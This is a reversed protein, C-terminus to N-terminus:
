KTQSFLLMVRPGKPTEIQWREEQPDQPTVLGDCTEDYTPNGDILLVYRHTRNGVIDRLILHWCKTPRDYSLPLRRWESFTGVVEVAAPQPTQEAPVPWRFVKTFGFRRGRKEAEPPPRTEVAIRAEPRKTRTRSKRGIFNTIADIM